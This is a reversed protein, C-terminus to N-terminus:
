LLGIACISGSRNQYGVGDQFSIYKNEKRKHLAIEPLKVAVSFIREAASSYILLPNM